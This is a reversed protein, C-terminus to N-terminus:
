AADLIPVHRLGLENREESEIAAFAQLALREGFRTLARERDTRTLTRVGCVDADANMLVVPDECEAPPIDLSSTDERAGRDLVAVSRGFSLRERARRRLDEDGMHTMWVFAADTKIGDMAADSFGHGVVWEVKAMLPDVGAAACRPNDDGLHCWLQELKDEADSVFGTAESLDGELRERWVGEAQHAGLGMRRQFALQQQLSALALEADTPLIGAVQRLDRRDVHSPRIDPTLPADPVRRLM